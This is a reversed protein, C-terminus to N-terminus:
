KQVGADRLMQAIDEVFFVSPLDYLTGDDEMRKIQQGVAAATRKLARAITANRVGRAVGIRICDKEFDSIFKGRAM